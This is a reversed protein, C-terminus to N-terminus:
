TKLYKTAGALGNLKQHSLTYSHLSLLLFRKQSHSQSCELPQTQETSSCADGGEEASHCPGPAGSPWVEAVAGGVPYSLHCLLYVLFTDTMCYPLLFFFFFFAQRRCSFYLGWDFSRVRKRPTNENNWLHNTTSMRFIGEGICWHLTTAPLLPRLVDYTLALFSWETLQISLGLKRSQHDVTM